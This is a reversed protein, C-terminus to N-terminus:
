EGSMRRWFSEEHSEPPREGRAATFLLLIVCAPVALLFLVIAVIKMPGEGQLRDTHVEGM